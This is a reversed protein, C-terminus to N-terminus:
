TEGRARIAAACSSAIWQAYSSIEDDIPRAMGECLKACAEREAEIEERLRQIETDKFATSHTVRWNEWAIQFSALNAQATNREDRLQKIEERQHKIEEREAAVAAELQGCFQTTHQGVACHRWGNRIM